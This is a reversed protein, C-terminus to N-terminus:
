KKNAEYNELFKTNYHGKLFIDTSLVQRLYSITTDIGKIQFHILARKMKQIADSRNDGHVIVKAVLSDYFPQITYGNYAASDVRVGLGGPALYDTIKGPSPMFGQEANEANIRCEIAWGEFVVDEQTLALEHGNAIHIQQKILDIGTIAETVPHEVQIRANMEMFYCVDEKRDYIFEVTGAGIYNVAKAARVAINGLEERKAKSIAPSPSEEVLKQMRRQITCDREGLHIINGSTDGIIQVEIHRFDEIYREMYIKPNGFSMYAERRTVEIANLLEEEKYVLRIGKGGGGAVAKLIVPYGLKNAWKLATEKNEILGDSGPTVPVDHQQMIQRARDKVGMQKITDVSPGIFIIGFKECITVFDVNEALFGYGPHIADAESLLAAKIINEINLYSENPSAPGICISEDALRVHLSESDAESYVAVTTIELEQCAQMIRVAIEGRNAILIKKIM